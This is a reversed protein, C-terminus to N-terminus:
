GKERERKRRGRPFGKSMSPWALQSGFIPQEEYVKFCVAGSSDSSQATQGAPVKAMYMQAVGPRYVNPNTEFGVSAGAAVTLTTANSTPEIQHCRIDESTVDAM